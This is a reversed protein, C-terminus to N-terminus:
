GAGCDKDRCYAAEELVVKSSAALRRADIRKQQASSCEIKSNLIDDLNVIQSLQFMQVIFKRYCVDNVNSGSKRDESLSTAAVLSATSCFRLLLARM